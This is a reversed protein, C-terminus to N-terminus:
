VIQRAQITKVVAPLKWEPSMEGVRNIRECVQRIRDGAGPQEEAALIIKVTGNTQQGGIRTLGTGGLALDLKNVANMVEYLGLALQVPDAAPDPQLLLELSPLLTRPTESWEVKIAPCVRSKKVFHGTTWIVSPDDADWFLPEIKIAPRVRSKKVFRGRSEPEEPMM